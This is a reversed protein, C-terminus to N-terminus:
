PKTESLCSAAHCDVKTGVKEFFEEMLKKPAMGRYGKLDHLKQILIKNKDSFRMVKHLSFLLSQLCTFM